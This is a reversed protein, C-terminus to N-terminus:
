AIAFFVLVIPFSIYAQFFSLARDSSSLDDELPFAAVYFQPGFTLLEKAIPPSTSVSSCHDGTDINNSRSDLRLHRWCGQFRARGCQPRAGEVGPPVERAGLTNVAVQLFLFAFSRFEVLGLYAASM